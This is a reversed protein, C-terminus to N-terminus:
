LQIKNQLLTWDQPQDHLLVFIHLNCASQLVQSSEAELVSCSEARPLSLYCNLEVGLVFFFFFSRGKFGNLKLSLCGSIRNGTM